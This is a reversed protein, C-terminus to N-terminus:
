YVHRWGVWMRGNVGIARNTPLRTALERMSITGSTMSAREQQQARKTRPSPTSARPPLCDRSSALSRASSSLAPRATGILRPSPARPNLDRPPPARPSPARPSPDRPSPPRPMPDRPSPPRATSPPPPAPPRPLLPRVDRRCVPCSAKRLLWREACHAHLCHPKAGQHGCPLLMLKPRPPAEEEEETQCEVCADGGDAVPPPTVRAHMKKPPPSFPGARGSLSSMCVVCEDEDRLADLTATYAAGLTDLSWHERAARVQAFSMAPVVLRKPSAPPRVAPPASGDEDSGDAVAASPLPPLTRDGLLQRRFTLPLREARWRVIADAAESHGRSRLFTSPDPQRPDLAIPPAGADLLIRCTAADKAVHLPTLARLMPMRISVDAGAALLTRVIEHNGSAAAIHLAAAPWGEPQIRVVTNVSTARHLLDVLTPLHGARAAEVFALDVDAPKDAAISALFSEGPWAAFFNSHANGRLSAPELTHRFRQPELAM